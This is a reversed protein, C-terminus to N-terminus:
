LGDYLEDFPDEPELDIDAGAIMFFLLLRLRFDEDVAPCGLVVRRCLDALEEAELLLERRRIPPGEPDAPVFLAQVDAFLRDFASRLRRIAEPQIALEDLRARMGSALEACFGRALDRGEAPIAPECDQREGAKKFAEAISQLRPCNWQQCLRLFGDVTGSTLEFRRHQCADIFQITASSDVTPDFVIDTPKLDPSLLEAFRMSYFSFVDCCILISAGKGVAVRLEFPIM